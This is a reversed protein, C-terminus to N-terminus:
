AAAFWDPKGTSAFAEEGKVKMNVPMVVSFIKESAGYRAIHADTANDGVIWVPTLKNRSPTLIKAVDKIHDLIPVNFAGSSTLGKIDPVIHRFNPYTGDIEKVPEMHLINHHGDLVKIVGDDIEVTSANSKKAATQVKKSIPLIAGQGAELGTEEQACTFINGDTAAMLGNEFYVGCIYYRTKDTSQALSVAALLKANVNIM